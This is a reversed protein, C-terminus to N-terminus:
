SKMRVSSILKQYEPTTTLNGLRKTESKHNIIESKHNIPTDIPYPYLISLTDTPIRSLESACAKENKEGKYAYYKNNNVIACYGNHFLVKPVLDSKAKELQKGDLRTRYTIERDSIEFVGSLGIDENTLLFIFLRQADDSLGLFWDDKWIKTYVIRTKMFGM